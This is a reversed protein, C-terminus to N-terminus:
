FHMGITPLITIDTFMVGIPLEAFWTKSNGFTLGPRLLFVFHLNTSNNKVDAGTANSTVIARDIGIGTSIAFYPKMFDVTSKFLYKGSYLLPIGWEKTSTKVGLAEKSHANYYFATHFGMAFDKGDIVIPWEMQFGPGFTFNGDIIGLSLTINKTSDGGYSSAKKSVGNKGAAYLASSYAFVFLIFLTQIFKM